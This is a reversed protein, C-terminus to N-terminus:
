KNPKSYGFGNLKCLALSVLAKNNIIKEPIKKIIKFKLLFSFTSKVVFIM